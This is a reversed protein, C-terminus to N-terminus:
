IIPHREFNSQLLRKTEDRIQQFDDVIDLLERMSYKHYKVCPLREDKIHYCKCIKCCMFVIGM